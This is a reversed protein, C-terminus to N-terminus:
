VFLRLFRYAMIPKHLLKIFIWEFIYKLNRSKRLQSLVNSKYFKEEFLKIEGENFKSIENFANNITISCFNSFKHKIRKQVNDNCFQTLRQVVIINDYAKKSNVSRTISTPNQRVHYVVESFYKTAQSLYSVRPCFENDEHYIGEYFKLKNNILFQRRYISFVAASKQAIGIEWTKIGSLTQLHFEPFINRKSIFKFDIDTVNDGGIVLVDINNTLHTVIRGLCNEEIWDDSDVFWVYKGRAHELGINRAKSLGGNNQSIIKINLSSLSTYKECVQLSNDTSGDNVFIIEYNDIDQNIVTTITKKIYKEVNYVPIIISLIM